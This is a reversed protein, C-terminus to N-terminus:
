QGQHTTMLREAEALEEKLPGVRRYARDIVASKELILWFARDYVAGVTSKSTELV